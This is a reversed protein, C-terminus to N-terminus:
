SYDRFNSEEAALRQGGSDTPGCRPTCVHEPFMQRFSERLYANAQDATKFHRAGALQSGWQVAKWGGDKDPYAWLHIQGDETFHIESLGDKPSPMESLTGM